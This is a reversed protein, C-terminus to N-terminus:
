NKGPLIPVWITFHSGQEPTSELEIRGGHAEALDRAISLGLGMGQPFRRGAQSRYFPTFIREQEEPAIGPGTDSVRIWLADGELGARTLVTGGEPTYRIANSVLNGVAQGLREPDIEATPLEPDIEVEWHLGKEVAAERSPSLTHALWEGLAVPRRDLELTGLLRDHLGALDDLLRGLRGIEEQMGMLLEQQVMPERAAGRLIAEVALRLGGLPRGLEHVLNALLQRRTDELDQLREVLVNVSHLLEHIERPGREPLPTLSGGTAIQCVTRSAQTIPRELNFALVLGTAAGLSLGGLMVGIILQRLLFFQEGVTTLRHSMRVVGQVQQDTGVVPILVDVIEHEMSRSYLAREVTGGALITEWDALELAQGTRGADTPDSSALLRGERDLLMVRTGVYSGMEDVFGQAQAPERWVEARNQVIRAALRAEAELEKTLNALLVQTELVYTLAIGMIPVVILLPLVHSLFFRGRLTGFM